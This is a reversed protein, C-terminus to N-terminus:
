MKVTPILSRRISKKWSIGLADLYRRHISEPMANQRQHVIGDPTPLVLTSRQLSSLRERITEWSDHISKQALQTRITHVLTYALLTLLIHSDVREGKRHYIPRLGLESKLSRFVAELDTLTIYTKWLEEEKWDILDSRLCYVGKLRKNADEKPTAVIRTAKRKAEDAFVEVGYHQAAHAYREQLRGIRTLIKEYDKTHRPLSLGEDLRSLAELFKESARAEMAEEKAERARSRCYLEVEGEDNLVRYAEVDITEGGREHRRVLVSSEEDFARKRKRSVVLYHYGREQIWELNAETAIGADMVIIPSSSPSSSFRLAEIMGQFTSAESVNGEFIEFHRIAGSGGLVLALTVLPADSRKEKSRGRHAKEIGEAAGEFYTNTLDFLTIQDEFGLLDCQREYLFDTLEKQLSHLIDTSRYLSSLSLREYDFDLLEGLASRERLWELMSRESGPVLAKAVLLGLLAQRHRSGVGKEKLFASLGLAELTELLVKEGGVSRSRQIEIGDLAVPAYEEEERKSEGARKQLIRASYSQALNEILPDTEFLSAEGRLVEEIRATLESWRERPLSFDSGLSLLTRQRVKDGERVSEVLRYTYYKKRGKGAKSLTRRIYM